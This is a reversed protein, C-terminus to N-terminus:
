KSTTTFWADTAKREWDALQKEAEDKAIGYREQIKGALQERRLAEAGGGDPRVLLREAAGDLRHQAAELEGHEARISGHAPRARDPADEPVDVADAGGARHHARRDGMHRHEVRGEMVGDGHGVGHVAARVRPDVRAQAAVAEVAVAEDGGDVEAGFAGGGAGDRDAALGAVLTTAIVIRRRGHADTLPGFVLQGIVLGIVNMTLTLQVMAPSTDFLEAMQPFAPLYLDMSLPGFANLGALVAILAVVRGRSFGPIMLVSHSSPHDTM